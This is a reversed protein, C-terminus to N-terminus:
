GALKEVRLLHREADLGPVQLPECSLLRWGAPLAAIEEDPRKGKMALLQGGPPLLHGGLRIIEALTGLARATLRDFLTAPRFDEARTAVVNVRDGLGLHRVAERQFRAKKGATEVLTVRLTPRAIAVPIGPLGAGSGIDVLSDGDVHPALTLSDLLHKDVGELPSRIATLNYTRNWALLLDLYAALPAALTEPQGLARLGERLRADATPDM